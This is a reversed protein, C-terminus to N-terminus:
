SVPWDTPFSFFIIFRDCKQWRTQFWGWCLCLQFPRVASSLSPWCFQPLKLHGRPSAVPFWHQRLHLPFFWLALSRWKLSVLHRVKSSINVIFLGTTWLCTYLACYWPVLVFLKSLQLLIHCQFIYIKSLIKEDKWVLSKDQHCSSVNLPDNRSSLKCVHMQM